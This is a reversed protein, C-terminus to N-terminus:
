PVYKDKKKMKVLWAEAELYTEFPYSEDRYVANFALQRDPYIEIFGPWLDGPAEMKTTLKEEGVDM